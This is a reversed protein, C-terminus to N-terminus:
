YMKKKWSSADQLLLEQEWDQQEQLQLHLSQHGDEDGDDADLGHLGQDEAFQGDSKDESEQDVVQDHLFSTLYWLFELRDIELMQIEIILLVKTKKQQWSHGHHHHRRCVCGCGLVTGRGILVSRRGGGCRRRGLVRVARSPLRRATTRVGSNPVRRLQGVAWVVRTVGAGWGGRVLRRAVGAHGGYGWWCWGRWSVLRISGWTFVCPFRM